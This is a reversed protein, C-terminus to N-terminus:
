NTQKCIVLKSKFYIVAEMAGFMIGTYFIDGALTNRFFPLGMTYCDILGQITQPYIAQTMYPQVAWMAFNTILFFLVSGTLSAAIINPVNKHKRVYLGILGITLFSGYVAIMLWPNYFGILSDAIFMAAIPLLLAQKKDLYVAGFLAIAAIPAFNPIHPIYKAIESFFPLYSFHTIIRLLAGITILFYAM